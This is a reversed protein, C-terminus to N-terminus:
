SQQYLLATWNVGLTLVDIKTNPNKLVRKLPFFQAKCHQSHSLTFESKIVM